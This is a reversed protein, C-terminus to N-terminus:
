PLFELRQCRYLITHYLVTRYPTPHSPTPHPVTSHLATYYLIIYYLICTHVYMKGKLSDVGSFLGKLTIETTPGEPLRSIQCSMLQCMRCELRIHTRRTCFREVPGGVKVCVHSSVRVEFREDAVDATFVKLLSLLQTRVNMAM